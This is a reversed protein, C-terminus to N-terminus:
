VTVELIYKFNNNKNVRMYEVTPPPRYKAVWNGRHTQQTTNM